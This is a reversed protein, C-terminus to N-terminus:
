GHGIRRHIRRVGMIVLALVLPISLATLVSPKAPLPIGIDDLGKMAYGVLGVIYYTIAAASLGEVTQQLRLQLRVRRNMSELLAQNQRERSIDVRTSLLQTARAVRESLTAMRRAAAECTKMAPNLRREIFERYTQSGPLRKERLEAIRREVLDSYALAASFRFQSDTHRQVIDAHLLTLRDLLGPEDEEGAQRMAGTIAALDTELYGLVPTLELAVPLTLLAMVRYTDIELLRQMTRGRQRPAMGNDYVLFRSFGDAHIRFDTFAIGLGGAVHAGIVPNGGFHLDAVNEPDPTMDPLRALEAHAALIISGDLTALWDAPVASIATREFLAGEGAAVTFWYRTFETHREWKLRFPGLDASFHRVDGAPPPAVGYRKCLDAVPRVDDDGFLVIYSLRVPPVLAEPPRAHAENNLRMRAAHDRPLGKADSATM